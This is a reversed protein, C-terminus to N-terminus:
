CSQGACGEFHFQVNNLSTFSTFTYVGTGNNVIWPQREVPIFRGDPTAVFRGFRPTITVTGPRADPVPPLALSYPQLGRGTWRCTVLPPMTRWKRSLFFRFIRRQLDLPLQAVDRWTVAM